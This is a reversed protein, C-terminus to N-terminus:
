ALVVGLARLRADLAAADVRVIVAETPIREAEVERRAAEALLLAQYEALWGAGPLATEDACHFEFDILAALADDPLTALEAAVRLAAEATLATGALGAPNGTVDRATIPIYPIRTAM